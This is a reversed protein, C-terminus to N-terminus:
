NRKNQLAVYVATVLCCVAVASAAASQFFYPMQLSQLAVDYAQQQLIMDVQEIQQGAADRWRLITELSRHVQEDSPMVRQATQYFSVAREALVTTAIGLLGAVIYPGSSPKRHVRQMYM